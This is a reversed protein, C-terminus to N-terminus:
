RVGASPNLRSLFPALTGQAASQALLARWVDIRALQDQVEAQALLGQADAVEVISALGAQYRATAQAESQRAAALQVPTNAAVARAAQVMAAAEQQQSTVTLLAEDYLASEARASAAAAAKRARLSSFDFANPFVVQVGAAWNARDLGLGSLGGDLQGNANAGSGRAFVSSQFYVHPLDTRSLIHEQAQAVDVAAQRLQTLPHTTTAAAPADPPLRDVLTTDDISVSGNTVGLVRALTIQTLAVAQQAQILRTQATAREADSRSAEAGPRLQNDVLTHVARSLLDRRDVDAQLAAVARQAGVINLFATGVATQVDLRTLAEAARARTVAAEASVVTAQRLGFDFPEWSFLAGTASGWVSGSSASTLVPGSMAPIVSQPLVQGFINNATARNSQWLSDLRPLYATKAVSVGATSANVQELAVRVTPYHDLAYQMAQDLTFTQPPSPSPTQARATSASALGVALSLIHLCRVTRRENVAIM